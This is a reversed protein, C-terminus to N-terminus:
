TTKEQKLIETTDCFPCIVSLAPIETQGYSTKFRVKFSRGCNVCTHDILLEMIEEAPESKEQQEVDPTQKPSPTSFLFKRKEFYIYIPVNIILQAVCTGIAAYDQFYVNVPILVSFVALEYILFIKNLVYGWHKMRWLGICACAYLLIESTSLTFSFIDSFGNEAFGALYMIVSVPMRFYIYFRYFAMPVNQDLLTYRKM